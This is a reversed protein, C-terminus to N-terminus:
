LLVNKMLQLEEKQIGPRDNMFHRAVPWKM